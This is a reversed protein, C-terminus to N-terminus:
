PTRSRVPSRRPSAARAPQDASPSRAGRRRCRRHWAPQAALRQVRAERAPPSGSGRRSRRSRATGAATSSKRRSCPMVSGISCTSQLPARQRRSLRSASRADATGGARRLRAAGWFRGSGTRRRGARAWRHALPPAGRRAPAVSRSRGPRRRPALDRRESDGSWPGRASRRRTRLRRRHDDEARRDGLGVGYRRQASGPMRERGPAPSSTIAQGRGPESKRSSCGSGRCPRRARRGRPARARGGPRRSRRDRSRRWAARLREAVRLDADDAADARDAHAADGPPLARHRQAENM